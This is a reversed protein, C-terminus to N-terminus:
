WGVIWGPTWQQREFNSGGSIDTDTVLHYLFSLFIWLVYAVTCDVMFIHLIDIYGIDIYIWSLRDWDIKIKYTLNYLNDSHIFFSQAHKILSIWWMANPKLCRQLRNQVCPLHSTKVFNAGVSAGFCGHSDMHIWGFEDFNMLVYWSPTVCWALM